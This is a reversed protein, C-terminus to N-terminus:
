VRRTESSRVIAVLLKQYDGSTEGKVRNELPKGYRRRYADKIAELRNPNWHARILRYILQTDRTGLGAMSKEMLKADRWFGQGDRKAKAGHMIYLLSSQIHGSFTKKIVKSLNKYRHSFGTVVAAIHPNSRNILIEFFPVEEKKKSAHHLTEIDAEVETYNVPLHDLPRQGNLAM